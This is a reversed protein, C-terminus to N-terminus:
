RMEGERGGVPSASRCRDWGVGSQYVQRPDNRDPLSVGVTAMDQPAAFHIVSIVARHEKKVSYFISIMYRCVECTTMARTGTVASLSLPWM